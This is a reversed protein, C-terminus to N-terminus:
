ICNPFSQVFCAHLGVWRHFLQVKVGTMTWTAWNIRKGDMISLTLFKLSSHMPMKGSLHKMILQNWQRKCTSRCPPLLSMDVGETQCFNHDAGHLSRSRWTMACSTSTIMINTAACSAACSAFTKLSQYSKRVSQRQPELDLLHKWFILAPRYGPIKFHPNLLPTKTTSQPGQGLALM